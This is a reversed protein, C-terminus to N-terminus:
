IFARRGRLAGWPSETANQGWLCPVEIKGSGGHPDSASAQRQGPSVKNRRWSEASEMKVCSLVPSAGKRILGRPVGAVAALLTASAWLGWRRRTDKATTRPFARRRGRTNGAHQQQPQAGMRQASGQPLPLLIPFFSPAALKPIQWRHISCPAKLPCGLELVCRPGWAWQLSGSLQKLWCWWTTYGCSVSAERSFIERKSYCYPILQMYARQFPEPVKLVVRWRKNWTVGAPVAAGFHHPVSPSNM